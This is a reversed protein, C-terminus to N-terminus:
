GPGLALAPAAALQAHAAALAADLEAPDGLVRSQRGTLAEARGAV